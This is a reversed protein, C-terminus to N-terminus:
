RSATTATATTAFRTAIIPATSLPFFRAAYSIGPISTTLGTWKLSSYYPFEAIRGRRDFLKPKILIPIFELNGERFHTIGVAKNQNTSDLRWNEQAKSFSSRSPARNEPGVPPIVAFITNLSTGADSSASWEMVGWAICSGSETTVMRAITLASSM